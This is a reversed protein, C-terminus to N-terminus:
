SDEKPMCYDPDIFVRIWKFKSGKPFETAGEPLREGQYQAVYLEDGPRLKLTERNFAVGLEKATAEHGVFSKGAYLAEAIEEGFAKSVRIGPLDNEHVMGLSFANSIFM